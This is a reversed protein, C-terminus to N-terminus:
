EAAVLLGGVPSLTFKSTYSYVIAGNVFSISKSLSMKNPLDASQALWAQYKAEEIAYLVARIDGTTANALADTLLPLTKDGAADNTTLKILHNAGDLVYGPLWTVPQPDFM